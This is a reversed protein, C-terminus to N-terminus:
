AAAEAGLLPLCILFATGQQPKSEVTIYGNNQRVIDYVTSLGFGTGKGADKTTFFPEFVRAKTTEDMGVGSDSVSVLVYRGPEGYGKARVFRKDITVTGTEMTLVGGQPMADKANAALNMLVQDMQVANIMTTLNESTLKLRLEIDEGLLRSLLKGMRGVVDNVDCIELNVPDKRSFVMLNRVLSAAEQSSAVIQDLYAQSPDDKELCTRV